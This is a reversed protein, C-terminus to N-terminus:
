KNQGFEYNRSKEELLKFDCSLNVFFDKQTLTVMKYLKEAKKRIKETNQQIFHNQAILLNRYKVDTISNFDIYKLAEEVVLIM